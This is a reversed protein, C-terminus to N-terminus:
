CAGNNNYVYNTARGKSFEYDIPGGSEVRPTAEAATIASTYAMQLDAENVISMIGLIPMMLLSLAARPM